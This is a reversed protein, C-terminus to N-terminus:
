QQSFDFCLQESEVQEKKYHYMRDSHFTLGQGLVKAREWVKESGLHVVYYAINDVEGPTMDLDSIADIIKQAKKQYIM